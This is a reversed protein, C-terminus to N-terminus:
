KSSSREAYLREVEPLTRDHIGHANRASMKGCKYAVIKWPLCSIYRFRFIARAVPDAIDDITNTLILKEVLMTELRETLDGIRSSKCLAKSSELYAIEDKISEIEINKAKIQNLWKKANM